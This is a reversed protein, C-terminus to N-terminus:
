KRKWPTVLDPRKYDPGVSCGGLVIALILGAISCFCIRTKM